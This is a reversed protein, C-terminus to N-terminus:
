LGSVHAIKENYPRLIEDANKQAERV